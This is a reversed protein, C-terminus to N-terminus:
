FRLTRVYCEEVVHRRSGLRHEDRLVLRLHAQQQATTQCAPTVGYQFRTMAALRQLDHRAMVPRDVQQYGVDDHWVHRAFLERLPQLCITRLQAYQEDGAIRVLRDFSMAHKRGPRRKQLLWQMGIHQCAGDPLNEVSFIVSVAPAPCSTWRARREPVRRRSPSRFLTTYPFLPPDPPRLLTLLFVIL